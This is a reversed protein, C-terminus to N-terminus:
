KINFDINPNEIKCGVKKYVVSFILIFFAFITNLYMSLSLSMILLCLVSPYLYPYHRRFLFSYFVMIFFLFSFILFGLVGLEVLIELFTNHAYLDTDFIKANYHRFTFVGTGWIPSTSYLELANAWINFRGAGSASGAVRKEIISTLNFVAFYNLIFILIVSVVLYLSFKFLLKIKFKSANVLLFVIVLTLLGGRSLTLVLLTLSILMFLKSNYFSKKYFFFFFSFCFTLAAFNPDITLGVLRPLSKEVFIGYIFKHEDLVNFHILGLIYFFLSVLLYFKLALNLIKDLDSKKSAVLQFSMFIYFLVLVSGLFFRFSSDKYDSYFFSIACFVYFSILLYIVPNSLSILSRLTCVQYFFIIATFILLLTFAFGVDIYIRNSLFSFCILSSYVQLLIGKYNKISM